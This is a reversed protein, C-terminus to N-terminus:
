ALTTFSRQLGEQTRLSNTIVTKINYLTNPTLGGINAFRSTSVFGSAPDLTITTWVTDINRKYQFSLTATDDNATFAGNLKAAVNTIETAAQTTTAPNTVGNGSLQLTMRGKAGPVNSTVTLMGNRVGTLTPTFRLVLQTEQLPTLRTPDAQGPLGLSVLSFDSASVAVVLSTLEANGTNRLTLTVESTQGVQRGAFTVVAGEAQVVNSREIVLDPVSLDSYAQETTILASGTYAQVRVRGNRPLSLGTREWGGTMRTCLGLHRYTSGGDESLDLRVWCVEPLTGSRLWTVRSTNLVSLTESGAGNLLRKLQPLAAYVRGQNDQAYAEM